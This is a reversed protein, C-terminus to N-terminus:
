KAPPKASLSVHLALRGDDDFDETIALTLRESRWEAYRQGDEDAGPGATLRYPGGPAQAGWSGFAGLLIPYSMPPLVMSCFRGDIDGLALWGRPGKLETLVGSHALGGFGAKEAATIADEIPKGQLYALCISNILAPVETPGPAAPQALAPDWATALLIVALGARLSKTLRGM